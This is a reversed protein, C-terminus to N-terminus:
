EQHDDERACGRGAGWGHAGVDAVQHVEVIRGVAENGPDWGGVYALGLVAIVAGFIFNGM